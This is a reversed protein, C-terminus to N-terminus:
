FQAHQSPMEMSKKKKKEFNSIINLNPLISARAVFPLAGLAEHLFDSGESRAPGELM